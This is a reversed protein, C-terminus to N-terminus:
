KDPYHYKEETFCDLVQTLYRNAMYRAMPLNMDLSNGCCIPDAGPIEGDYTRIFSFMERILPFIDLPTVDGALLLYFGTRCGMPGFYVIRNSYLPHNRLFTAGLHEITHIEATNMVPEENPRTIRIDFTTIISDGVSDKRSVYLGPLLRTHDITFSAIPKM